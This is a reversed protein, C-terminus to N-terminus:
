KNKNYLIILGKLLLDEDLIIDRRCLPVVIGALGGTAVVTAKTGLEEEIREAMGDLSAATSYLIGSKMADITNPGIINKPPDFSIKPLQATRGVLSDLSVKMGPMIAGGRYKGEGDIVSFTTATGMDIIILPLPYQSTGAVADVVLDSGLQAPNDTGICLGTKIGPGVVMIKGDTLKHVAEKVTNTLSPVVSSIISGDVGGMDEGHLTFINKILIAYEPATASHNTSLRETFLIKDGDCGGIVINSNGIDIALIMINNERLCNGTSKM